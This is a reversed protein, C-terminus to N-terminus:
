LTVVSIGLQPLPPSTMSIECVYVSIIFPFKQFQLEQPNCGRGRGEGNRLATETTGPIAAIESGEVDVKLYTIEKGEDGLRKIADQLSLVPVEMDRRKVNNHVKIVGTKSGLGM